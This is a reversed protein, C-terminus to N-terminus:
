EIRAGIPFHDSAYKALRDQEIWAARIRPTEIGFTFIYDVRQGPHQTSFSGNTRAQKPDFGYLSDVYGADLINQVVRRPIQGGNDHWAERTAPKVKEPDTEQYPANSNFDGALLHPRNQQRHPAFVDLVVAIEKERQKEDEERAKAHLHVVGITWEREIEPEVVTAELLSKFDSLRRAALHDVTERIPWRSLLASGSKGGTAHIFDMNLRAAIRELVAADDAEVLSVIDPRQAVIVEALPDARGVGGELINYSVIRMVWIAIEVCSLTRNTKLERVFGRITQGGYSRM